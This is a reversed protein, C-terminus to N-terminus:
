RSDSPLPGLKKNYYFGAIMNGDVMAYHPNAGWREYGREEYLKIAREQTERVDLHLMAYDAQRARDEVQSLLLAALGHGRAWPAVFFSVIEARFRTAESNRSPHLLQASGAIVGDLRGVFIEREPVLLTGRWHQELLQRAPPQIWGFGGGDLIAAETADCLDNLDLTSLQTIRQASIIARPQSRSVSTTIADSM